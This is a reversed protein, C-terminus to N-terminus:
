STRFYTRIMYEANKWDQIGGKKIISINAEKNNIVWSNAEVPIEFIQFNRFKGSSVDKINNCSFFIIFLLIFSVSFMIINNKIGSRM